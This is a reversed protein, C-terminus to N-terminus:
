PVGVVAQAVEHEGIGVAILDVDSLLQLRAATRRGRRAPRAQNLLQVLSDRDRPPLSESAVTETRRPGNTSVTTM